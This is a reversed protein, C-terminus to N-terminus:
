GWPTPSSRRSCATTWFSTWSSCVARYLVVGVAISGCFMILPLMIATLLASKVTARYMKATIDKFEDINRDEIVLTKSAKAGTIGENFAGTIQANVARVRRNIVILRRQYLWTIFALVPLVALLLLALRANLSFMFIFIGVLYCANWAMHSFGWAVMGSIRDVDSMVRAILFGVSTTSYFSVPLQQLHVFCDRRIMRGLFMEVTIAQRAFFIVTSGEFIIVSLAVISVPGLGSTTGATIFHNVAYRTFLPLASEALASALM